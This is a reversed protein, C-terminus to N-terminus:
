RILLNYRDMMRYFTVRSIGLSRAAESVNNGSMGLAKRLAFQEAKARIQDLTEPHDETNPLEMDEPGILPQECMIVAREVKNKLERVNGPWPYNHMARLADASYGKIRRQGNQMFIRLYYHALPQIDEHREHLSPLMLSLVRLRFYLDERFQGHSIADRLNKHTATIVRVDVPILENGGIREITREQLFRLLNVQMELPLDGIEDLFITGGHAAEIRGLHRQHAGTFAGKEHGFLVTQILAPPIAGCNVAVFPKAARQSGKHIARAVLEKGTGSEGELMVSADSGAIKELHHFVRQMAPSNGIIEYNDSCDPKPANYLQRIQAMGYAHGLANVLRASDTPFTHYDFLYNTILERIPQDALDAPHLLGLWEVQPTTRILEQLRHLTGDVLPAKLQVVGVSLLKDAILAKAQEPRNTQYVQWGAATVHQPVEWAKVSYLCIIKRVDM